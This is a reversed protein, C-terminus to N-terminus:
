RGKPDTEGVAHEADASQLDKLCKKKNLKNLFYLHLTFCVVHFTQRFLEAGHVLNQYFEPRNGVM